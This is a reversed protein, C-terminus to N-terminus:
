TFVLPAGTEISRTCARILQLCTFSAAAHRRWMPGRGAGLGQEEAVTLLEESEPDLDAPVALVAVLTPIGGPTPGGGDGAGHLACGLSRPDAAPCPGAAPPTRGASLPQQARRPNGTSRRSRVAGRRHRSATLLEFAQESALGPPDDRPFRADEVDDHVLVHGGPRLLAAVRRLTAAPDGQHILVFRVYAADCLGDDAIAAPALANVDGHVLRVDAHGSRAVIGRATEIAGANSDVGV